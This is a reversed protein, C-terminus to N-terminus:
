AAEYSFHGGWSDTSVWAVPVGASWAASAANSIFSVTSASQLFVFGQYHVAATNAGVIGRVVRAAGVGLASSATVPLSLTVVGTPAASLVVSFEVTVLDGHRLYRGLRSSTTVNTVTPTYATWPQAAQAMRDLNAGTVVLGAQAPIASVPM